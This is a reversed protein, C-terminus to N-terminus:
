IRKVTLWASDKLTILKYPFKEKYKNCNFIEIVVDKVSLSEDLDLARVALAAIPIMIFPLSDKRIKKENYSSMVSMLTKYPDKIMDINPLYHIAPIDNFGKCECEDEQHYDYKISLSSNSNESFKYSSIHDGEFDQIFKNDEKEHKHIISIDCKTIIHKESHIEKILEYIMDILDISGEISEKPNEGKISIKTFEFEDM